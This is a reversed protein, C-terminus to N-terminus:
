FLNILMFENSTDAGGLEFAFKSEYDSNIGYGTLICVDVM